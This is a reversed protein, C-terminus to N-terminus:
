RPAASRWGGGRGDSERLTFTQISAYSEGASAVHSASFEVKGLVRYRTDRAGSGRLRRLIESEWGDDVTHKGLTDAFVHLSHMARLDREHERHAACFAEFDPKEGREVRERFAFFLEQARRDFGSESPLSTTTM